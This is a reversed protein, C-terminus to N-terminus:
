TTGEACRQLFRFIFQPNSYYYLHPFGAASSRGGHICDWKQQSIPKQAQYDAGNCTSDYYHFEHAKIQEGQNLLEGKAAPTLMVYGFRSLKGTYFARGKIVGAMPYPNGEMDEMEDHLYLFGGCEALYPCGAKLLERVEKLMILNESLKQIHLEPYGGYLLIGDLKEPLHRDHLPSFPVLEAGMEEMLELNDQYYFCFAEDRAIGIRPSKQMKLIGMDPAPSNFEKANRACAIISDIDLTKELLKSLGELKDQLGTIEAPTVLGLHRSEIVFEPCRPVYGFVQLSLEQEIIKRLRPYIGPSCQNLIVGQICSDEKYQLFGQILPVVSLSMGRADVILVVPTDTAKAVEYSSAATTTGGAGDYFGMVGELVSIDAKQAQRSFLYRATEQDTFFTDLNKSPTGLVRKHFMPDIYDPGCKFSVSTMGRRELVKLIGCTLLTKGSGSSPAALMIRPLKM